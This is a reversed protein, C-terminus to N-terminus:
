RTLVFQHSKAGKESQLSLIYCGPALQALDFRHKNVGHILRLESLQITKGKVDTITCVVQRESDTNITLEVWDHAPNPRISSQLELTLDEIGVNVRSGQSISDTCGYTNTVWLTVNYFGNAGYVHIPSQQTSTNDAGSNPDGFDWLWSGAFISNDAFQVTDSGSESNIEYSHFNAVPSPNVVIQSFVALSDSGNGSFVWLAVDYTGATSYIHTPSVENSGSGDGFDWYNTVANESLNTFQVEFPACGNLSDVSFDATLNPSITMATQCSVSCGLSDIVDV